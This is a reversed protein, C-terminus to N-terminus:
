PDNRTEDTEMNLQPFNLEWDGEPENLEVGEATLRNDDNGEESRNLLEGLDFGDTLSQSM